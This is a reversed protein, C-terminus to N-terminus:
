GPEVASQTRERGGSAAYTRPLILSFTSGRGAVSDLTIEGGLLRALGQAVSLGLGVGAVGHEAGGNGKRFREFVLARDEDRIGAGTDSVRVVVQERGSAALGVTVEGRETFKLANSVLVSLIRRVRGPDTFVECPVAPVVCEFALEKGAFAPAFDDGLERVLKCLDFREAVPVEQGAELCVLTLCSEVLDRVAGYQRAAAEVPKRLHEPVEGYRGELILDLHGRMIHLPTRLEHTVSAVFQNKLRDAEALRELQNKLTRHDAEIGQRMRDLLAALDTIEDRGEVPIPRSLDGAAIRESERGLERIPDVFSEVFPVWVVLAFVGLVIAAGVLQWALRRTEGFIREEPKEFVVSWGDQSLPQVATLLGDRVVSFPAGPHAARDRLLAADATTLVMRPNTAVVVSGDRSVVYALSAGAEEAARSLERFLEGSKLSGAGVITGITGVLQKDANRIATSILVHPEIWFEDMHLDSVQTGAGELVRRLGGYTGMVRNLMGRGPPKTWQVSGRRDTVFTLDGFEHPDSVLFHLAIWPPSVDTRGSQMLELAEAIGPWGAVREVGSRFDELRGDLRQAAAQLSDQTVQRAREASLSVSYISFGGFVLFVLILGCLIFLGGRVKLPLTRLITVVFRPPSLLRPRGKM